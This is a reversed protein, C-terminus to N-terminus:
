ASSWATASSGPPRCPRWTGPTCCTSAAAPPWWRAAPRGYRPWWRAPRPPASGTVAASSAGAPRDPRPGARPLAAAVGGGAVYASAEAVAAQVAESVLAGRALALAPPRRRVPGRGRLHGGRRQGAGAGGAPDVRRPLAARRGRRPDGRGRRGALAAAAGQAARAAAALRSAAPRRRALERAESENPTALQVGPVPPRAARTRTGSWRRAPPPWRPACRRAAAGGGPRLRQGAGRVGRRAAAAGGRRAAGPEGPRAAGTTACCCGAGPGCGSRRRRRAPWRCRTCRCGPPPSCRASGPAVPM